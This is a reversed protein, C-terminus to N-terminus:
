VYIITGTEAVGFTVTFETRASNHAVGYSALKDRNSDLVDVLPFYGKNHTVTVSTQNTFPVEVPVGSYIAKMVTNFM